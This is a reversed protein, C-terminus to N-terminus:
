NRLNSMCSNRAKQVTQQINPPPTSHGTRPNVTMAKFQEQTLNYAIEDAYCSCFQKVQMSGFQSEVHSPTSQLCAVFMGKLVDDRQKQNLLESSASM